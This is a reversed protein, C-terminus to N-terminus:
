SKRYAWAEAKQFLGKLPKLESVPLALLSEDKLCPNSVLAEAQNAREAQQYFDGRRIYGAFVIRIGYVWVNGWQYPAALLTEGSIPNHIGIPGKPVRNIQLAGISFFGSKIKTRERGALKVQQARYRRRGDQGHLTLTVPSSIDTKLV